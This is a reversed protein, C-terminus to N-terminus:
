FFTHYAIWIRGWKSEFLSNLPFTSKKKYFWKTFNTDIPAKKTINQKPKKKKKPKGQLCYHSNPNCLSIVTYPPIEFNVSLLRFKIRYAPLLEYLNKLDLNKKFCNKMRICCLLTSMIHLNLKCVPLAFDKCGGSTVPHLHYSISHHYDNQLKNIYWTLWTCM